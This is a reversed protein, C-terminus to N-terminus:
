HTLMLSCIEDRWSYFYIGYNVNEAPAAYGARLPTALTLKKTHSLKYFTIVLPDNKMPSQKM